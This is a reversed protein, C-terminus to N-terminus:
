KVIQGFKFRLKLTHKVISWTYNIKAESKWKNIFLYFNYTKM